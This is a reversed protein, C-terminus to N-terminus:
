YESMPHPKITEKLQMTEAILRTFYDNGNRENFKKALSQVAKELWGILESVEYEISARRLPFSNPLRLRVIERGRERLVDLLLLAAKYFRFRVNQNSVSLAWSLYDEFISLAKELNDTVILFELHETISDLYDKNHTILRYGRSHYQMAEEIRGLRFLPMLV